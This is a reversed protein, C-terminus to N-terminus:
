SITECMDFDFENFVYWMEDFKMRRHTQSPFKALAFIIQVKYM